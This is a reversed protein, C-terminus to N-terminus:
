LHNAKGFTMVPLYIKHLLRNLSLFRLSYKFLIKVIVILLHVNREKNSYWHKSPRLRRYWKKMPALDREGPCEKSTQSYGTTVSLWILLIPNTCSYNSTCNMYKQWGLLRSTVHHMTTTFSCKKRWKHVNKDIEEKLRVLLAIYYESNITREKEFYNIFLIGQVDWFLFALVKGASTQTKPRKSRSKGVAIRGTSQWNSEPTFHRTRTEDITM